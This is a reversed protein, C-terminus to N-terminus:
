GSVPFLGSPPRLIVCARLLVNLYIEVEGYTKMAHHNISSLPLKLMAKRGVSYCLHSVFTDWVLIANHNILISRQRSHWLQPPKDDTEKRPAGPEKGPWTMHSTHLVFHFQPLNERLVEAEAAL